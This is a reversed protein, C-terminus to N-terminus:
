DAAVSASPAKGQPAAPVKAVFPREFALYFLYCVAAVLPAVIGFQVALLPLGRLPLQMVYRSVVALVPEHTLYLSYSFAGLVAMWRMELVRVILLPLSFRPAAGAAQQTLLANTLTIIGVVTTVGLLTDAFWLHQWAWSLRFLFMAGTVALLGVSLYSWPVRTRAAVLSAQPSFNILAGMGGLAFLGIYWPYTWAFNNPAPLLFFPALGALLGAALMAVPGFRRLTPLLLLPLVFYIQWELAVSWLPGNITLVTEPHLNHVLLAHSVVSQWTLDGPKAIAPFLVLLGISLVLAAFYPPMIRRARRRIYERWGGRMKLDSTRTLPMMLVYGSLVIFLAVAFHGADILKLLKTEAGGIFPDVQTRIAVYAHGLMVYLAALGRLGDLFEIRIREPAKM